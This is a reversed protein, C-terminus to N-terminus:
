KMIFEMSQSTAYKPITLVPAQTTGSLKRKVAFVHLVATVHCLRLDDDEIFFESVPYRGYITLERGHFFIDTDSIFRGTICLRICSEQLLTQPPM